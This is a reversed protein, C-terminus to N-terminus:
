SVGLFRLGQVLIVAISYGIGTYFLLQLGAVRLSNTEKRVVAVTSMCQLSFFFFFILGIITSTTFIKQSSDPFTAGRMQELLGAQQATEEDDNVNFVIAMSSVFVERAAFASILGVGVRWDVGMPKLLPQMGHGLQAAFSHDMHSATIFAPPPSDPTRPQNSGLGFNTLLWLCASIVIIPMGARKLYSSSRTWTIRLIPKMQPTRYAPLEM